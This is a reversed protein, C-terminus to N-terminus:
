RPGHPSLNPRGQLETDELSRISTPERWCWPAENWPVEKTPVPDNGRWLIQLRWAARPGRYRPQVLRRIYGLKELEKLYKGAWSPSRNCLWALRRQSPYCIGHVSAHIGLAALLLLLPKRTNIRTDSIARAPIVAWKTHPAEYSSRPLSSQKKKRM